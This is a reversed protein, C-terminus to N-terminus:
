KFFDLSSTSPISGAVQHNTSLCASWQVLSDTPHKRLWVYNISYCNKPRLETQVFQVLTLHNMSKRLFIRALLFRFLFSFTLRNFIILLTNNISARCLCFYYWSILQLYTNLLPFLFRVIFRSPKPFYESPQPQWPSVTVNWVTTM